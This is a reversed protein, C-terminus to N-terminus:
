SRREANQAQDAQSITAEREAGCEPCTATDAHLDRLWYGCNICIDYGLDRLALRFARRQLRWILRGFVFICLAGASLMGIPAAIKISAFTALWSIIIYGCAAVAVPLALCAGIMKLRFGWDRWARRYADRAIQRRQDATLPLNADILGLQIWYQSMTAAPSLQISNDATRSQRRM